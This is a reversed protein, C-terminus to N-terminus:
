KDRPNDDRSGHTRYYNAITTLAQKGQPTYGTDGNGGANEYFRWKWLFGGAFWPQDWISEYMAQYARNQSKEDFPSQNLEWHPGTSGIVSRYGYETFVIPRGKSESFAELQGVIPQWAKRLQNVSPLASTDLPFYADIGIFDLEDWFDVKQYNDWNAAYTISGHYIKRVEKILHRWYDPRAVVAKRYETGICFAEVQLSDALQAFDVIYREYSDEWEQWDEESTLAYEGPWGDDQIWVHPKLMIRFGEQRAMRIMEAVGAYSEGWWHHDHSYHVTPSGKRSFAYPIIAVYSSFSQNVSAFVASDIPRPPSELSVGYFRDHSYDTARLSVYEQWYFYSALIFIFGIISFLRM